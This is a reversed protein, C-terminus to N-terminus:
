LAAKLIKTVDAKNATRPNFLDIVRQKLRFLDDVLQPIDSEKMGVESLTQKMGMDQTLKKWALIAKGAADTVPLGNVQEGMWEAVKAYRDPVAVLNFAMIHPMLIALAAGHSIHFKSVVFSDIFHGLGTENIEAGKMALAAAVAMNYRAEMHKNGKGYALRINRSAMKIAAECFMDGLGGSGASVYGEISHAFVDMATEATVNQPLNLTMEPDIITADSWFQNYRLVKKLGDKEDTFTLLCSWESGTGATTPVLIKLLTKKIPKGPPLLDQVTLGNPAALSVVKTTDMTSGGGVGILLDYGGAVVQQICQETVGTPANPEVRDFIDYKCGAKDLSPKIKDLLGAQIVGPDTVILAKTAGLDRSIEGINGATGPGIVTYPIKFSLTNM